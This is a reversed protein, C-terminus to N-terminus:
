GYSFHGSATVEGAGTELRYGLSVRKGARYVSLGCGGHGKVPSGLLAKKGPRRLALKLSITSDIRVTKTLGEEVQVSEIEPATGSLHWRAGGVSRIIRYNVCAYTGAPVICIRRQEEAAGEPAGQEPWSLRFLAGDANKLM